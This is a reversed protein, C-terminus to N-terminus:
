IVIEGEVDENVAFAAPCLSLLMALTLVISLIKKMEYKYPLPNITIKM